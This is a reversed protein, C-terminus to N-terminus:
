CFEFLLILWWIAYCFFFLHRRRFILDSYVQIITYIFILCNSITLTVIFSAFLIEFFPFTSLYRLHFASNYLNIFKIKIQCFLNISIYALTKYVWQTIWHFLTIHMNNVSLGVGFLLKLFLKGLQTKCIVYMITYDKTWHMMWWCKTKYM